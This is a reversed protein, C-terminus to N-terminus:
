SRVYQSVQIADTFPCSGLRFGGGGILSKISGLVSLGFFGMAMFNPESISLSLASSRKTAFPSSLEIQAYLPGPPKLSTLPTIEFVLGPTKIEFITGEPLPPKFLGTAM